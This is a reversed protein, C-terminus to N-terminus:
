KKNSKQSGSKKAGSSKKVPTHSVASDAKQEAEVAKQEVAEHENANVSDAAAKKAAAIDIPAEINEVARDAMIPPVVRVPEQAKEAKEVESASQKDANEDDDRAAVVTSSRSMIQYLAQIDFVMTCKNDGDGTEIVMEKDVPSIQRIEKITGIIGGITKILDGAKLSRHMEDTQRARKKNTFMPVILLALVLLALLAIFVITTPDVANILSYAIM